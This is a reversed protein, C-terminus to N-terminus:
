GKEPHPRALKPRAPEDHRGSVQSSLPSFLVWLFATSMGAAAIFLAARLGITAAIIGGLLGGAPLTGWVLFRMTANMRGLLDDPCREQRLSLQSVNYVVMAFSGALQGSGAVWFLYGHGILPVLFSFGGAAAAALWIVNGQGIRHALRTVSIAGLVSGAAGISSFMGIVGASYGLGRAMLVILMAAQAGYFLNFTATCCAIGRLSPEAFVFRIGLAIERRFGPRQRQGPRPEADTMSSIALVSWVFSISDLIMAGPATAAQIAFGAVARAAAMTVSEVTQLTANGAMLRSRGVVHPLYSQYAVDFFVTLLGHALAVAFLQYITLSRLWWAVPVSAIVAARGLDALVLVRRKRMRDIWAGAPLGILLFGLTSLATLLGVQFTSAHLLTIATLPMAMITVRSGIISVSSGVFMRRFNANGLVETTV